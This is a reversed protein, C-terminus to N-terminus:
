KQAPTRVTVATATVTGSTSEVIRPKLSLSGEGIPTMFLWTNQATSVRTLVVSMLANPTRMRDTTLLMPTAASIM